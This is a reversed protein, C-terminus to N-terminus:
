IVKLRCVKEIGVFVQKKHTINYDSIKKFDKNTLHFIWCIFKFESASLGLRDSYELVESPITLLDSPYDIKGYLTTFKELESM